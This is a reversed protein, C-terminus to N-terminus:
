NRALWSLKVGKMGGDLDHDWISSEGRLPESMAAPPEETYQMGRSDGTLWDRARFFEFVCEPMSLLDEPPLLLVIAWYFSWFSFFLAIFWGLLKAEDSM